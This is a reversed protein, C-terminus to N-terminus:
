GRTWTLRGHTDLEAEYGAKLMGVASEARHIRDLLAGVSDEDARAVIGVARLWTKIDVGYERAKDANWSLDEEALARLIATPNVGARELVPKARLARQEATMAANAISDLEQLLRCLTADDTMAPLPYRRHPLM